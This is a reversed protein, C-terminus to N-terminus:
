DQVESSNGELERIVNLVMELQNDEYNDDIIQPIWVPLFIRDAELDDVTLKAGFRIEAYEALSSYEIAYYREFERKLEIADVFLADFVKGFFQEGLGGRCIGLATLFDCKNPAWSTSILLHSEESM